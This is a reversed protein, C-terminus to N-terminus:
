LIRNQNGADFATPKPHPSAVVFGQNLVRIISGELMGFEDSHAIVREGIDGIVPAFLAMARLSM